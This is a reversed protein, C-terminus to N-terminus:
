GKWMEEEHCGPRSGGQCRSSSYLAILRLRLDVGDRESRFLRLYGVSELGNVRELWEAMRDCCVM